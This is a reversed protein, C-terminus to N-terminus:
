AKKASQYRDFEAKLKRRQSSFEVTYATWLIFHDNRYDLVVLYSFDPLSVLVRDTLAGVKTSRKNMWCLVRSTDGMAEIMARPWAMRECRSYDADRCMEPSDPVPSKSILHWFGSNVKGYTGAKAKVRRGKVVPQSRLFDRDYIAYVAAEYAAWDGGFEAITILPPLWDSVAAVGAREM